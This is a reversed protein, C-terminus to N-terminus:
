VVISQVTSMPSPNTNVVPGRSLIIEATLHAVDTKRREAIFELSKQFEAFGIKNLGKAKIKAFTLDADTMSFAKDVLGCDKCLKAFRFGDMEVKKPTAGHVGFLAFSEYVERLSVPAGGVSLRNRQPAGGMSLRSPPTGTTRQPTQELGGGATTKPAPPLRGPMAKKVGRVDAESRDLLTSLDHSDDIAKPGGKKYVGTYTSKDDHLRVAEAKTAHAKPGGVTMVQRVTEQFAMGKKEATLQLASLFQEFTLKRAGKTKVKTFIIDAEGATLTSGMLNSDKLVKLFSRSEMEHLVQRSGFSSFAVFINKMEEEVAVGMKIRLLQRAHSTILTDYFASFEDYSLKGDCDKDALKFNHALLQEVEAGKKDDFLGLDALVQRLEQSDISGNHDKDYWSFISDYSAASGKNISIAYFTDVDLTDGLDPVGNELEAYLDETQVELLTALDHASETCQDDAKLKKLGATLNGHGYQKLNRRVAKAVDRYDGRALSRGNPLTDMGHDKLLDVVCNHITDLQDKSRENCVVHLLWGQKTYASLQNIAEGFKLNLADLQEDPLFAGKKAGVDLIRLVDQGLALLKNANHQNAKATMATQQLRFVNGFVEGVAPKVAAAQVLGHGIKGMGTLMASVSAHSADPVYPLLANACDQIGQCSAFASPHLPQTIGLGDIVSDTTVRDTLVLTAMEEIPPPMDAQENSGQMGGRQSACALDTVEATAPTLPPLNWAARLQSITSILEQSNKGALKELESSTLVVLAKGDILRFADKVEALKKHKLYHKVDVVSWTEPHGKPMDYVKKFLFMNYTLSVSPSLKATRFV